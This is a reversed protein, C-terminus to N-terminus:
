YVSYPVEFSLGSEGSSDIISVTATNQTINVVTDGPQAQLLGFFTEIPELDGDENITVPMTQNDESPLFTVSVNSQATYDGPASLM